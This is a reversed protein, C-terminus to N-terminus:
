KLFMDDDAVRYPETGFDQPDDRVRPRKQMREKQKQSSDARSVRKRPIHALHPPIRNPKALPGATVLELPESVNAGMYTVTLTVNYDFLAFQLDNQIEFWGAPSSEFSGASSQVEFLMMYNMAGPVFSGGVTPGNMWQLGFSGPENDFLTSPFTSAADLSAQPIFRTIGAQANSSGNECWMVCQLMWRGAPFGIYHSDPGDSSATTLSFTQTGMLRPAQAAQWFPTQLSTTCDFSICECMTQILTRRDILEVEYFMEIYGVSRPSETPFVGSVLWSFQYSDYTKPDQGDPVVGHRLYLEVYKVPINLEHNGWLPGTVADEYSAAATLSSPLPSTVNADGFLTINGALTTPASTRFAFRLRRIKYKSFGRAQTSLWPFIADLGPNIAYIEQNSVGSAPLMVECLVGTGSVVESHRKSSVTQAKQRRVTSRAVPAQVAKSKTSAKSSRYTGKGIMPIDVSFEVKRAPKRTGAKNSRRSSMYRNGNLNVRAGKNEELSQEDM